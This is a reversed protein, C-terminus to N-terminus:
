WPSLQPALKNKGFRKGVFYASSDAVAILLILYLLMDAQYKQLVLLAAWAVLLVPFATTPLLWKNNQYILTGQHYTILLYLIGAWIALSLLSLGEWFSYLSLYIALAFLLLSVIFLMQQIMDDLGSLKAWEWGGIGLVVAAAVFAFAIHPLLQVSLIVLLM